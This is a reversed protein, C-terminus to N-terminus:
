SKLRNIPLIFNKEDLFQIKLLSNKCNKIQPVVKAGEIAHFVCVVYGKGVSGVAGNQQIRHSHRIKRWQPPISKKIPNSGTIYGTKRHPLSREGLEM